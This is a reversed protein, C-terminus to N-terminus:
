SGCQFTLLTCIWKCTHSDISNAFPQLEVPQQKVSMVIPPFDIKKKPLMILGFILSEGAGFNENGLTLYHVLYQISFRIIARLSVFVYSSVLYHIQM